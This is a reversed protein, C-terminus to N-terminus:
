IGEVNRVQSFPQPTFYLDREIPLRLRGRISQLESLLFYGWESALGVVFGFFKFDGEIEEGEAVYWTWNADPTFFKAYVTPDPLSDQEYLRPLQARLEETLLQM